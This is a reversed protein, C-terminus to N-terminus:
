YDRVHKRLAFAWKVLKGPTVRVRSMRFKSTYGYWGMLVYMFLKNPPLKVLQKTVPLLWPFEVTVGFLKQMNQCKVLETPDKFRLVSEIKYNARIKDYDGDFFGHEVCYEGLETKPYPTLLSSWAMAPRLRINYYLTELDTKYPHEVPLALINFIGYKIGANRLLSCANEIQDKSMGRKLINNRVHDDATEVALFVSMCGARKLADVKGADLLNARVNCMFPLGVERKWRDAFEDLWEHSCMVFTDDIIRVFELPYKSRIEKVEAIVNGVSRRRVKGWEPGYLRGMQRNFCYTCRYPCGRGVMIRKEGEDRLSVDYNYVLERDPFPIGDLNRELGRVPNKIIVGNKGKFWFNRTKTIPKKKEMKDLLEAFAEEAEGICVADVGDESIMEPFYTAHPGGFVAFFNYKEKLKRNFAIAHKHEGTHISYALVDPRYSQMKRDISEKDTAIIDTEHGAAKAAASLYMIGLRECMRIDRLVFLARMIVGCGARDAQRPM